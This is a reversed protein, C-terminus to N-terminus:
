ILKAVHDHIDFIHHGVRAILVETIRQASYDFYEVPRQALLIRREPDGVVLPIVDVL